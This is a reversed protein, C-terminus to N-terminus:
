GMWKATLQMDRHGSWLQSLNNFNEIAYATASGTFPAPAYDIHLPHGIAVCNASPEVTAAAWMSDAADYRNWGIAATYQSSSAPGTGTVYANIQLSLEVSQPLGTLISLSNGTDGRMPGWAPYHVAPTYWTPATTPGAIGAQLIIQRQNYANWVGFRRSHGYSVHATCAGGAPDIQISGLYPDGASNVLIGNLRTLPPNPDHGPYTGASYFGKGYDHGSAPTGLYIGGSSNLFVKHISNGALGALSVSPGVADTPGSTFTIGNAANGTDPAYWLTSSTVDASMVPQASALTLRGGFTM